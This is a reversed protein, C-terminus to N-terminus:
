PTSRITSLAALDDPVSEEDRDCCGGNYTADGETWTAGCHECVDEQDFEVSAHRVNDVHRRIETAMEECRAELDADHRKQSNEGHGYIFSPSVRVSGFDGLGRPEVVVRFNEKRGKAKM